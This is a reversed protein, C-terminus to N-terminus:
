ERRPIRTIGKICQLLNASIALCVSMRLRNYDSGPRCPMWRGGDDDDKDSGNVARQLDLRLQFLILPLITHSLILTMEDPM